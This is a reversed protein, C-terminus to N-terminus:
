THLTAAKALIRQLGDPWVDDTASQWSRGV